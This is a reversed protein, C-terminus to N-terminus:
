SNKITPEFRKGDPAFRLRTRSTRLPRRICASANMRRHADHWSTPRLLVVRWSRWTMCRPTFHLLTVCRAMGHWMGERNLYRWQNDYSVQPKAAQSSVPHHRSRTKASRFSESLNPATSAHLLYVQRASGNITMLITSSSLIPLPALWWRRPAATRPLGTTSPTGSSTDQQSWM